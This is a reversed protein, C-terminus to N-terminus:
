TKAADSVPRRPILVTVDYIDKAFLQGSVAIVCNASEDTAIEVHVIEPPQLTGAVGGHRSLLKLHHCVACPQRLGHCFWCSPWVEQIQQECIVGRALSLPQRANRIM